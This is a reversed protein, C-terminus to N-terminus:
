MFQRNEVLTIIFNKFLSDDRHHERYIFEHLYSIFFKQHTGFQRKLKNKIRMWLNDMNRTHNFSDNSDVSRSDKQHVVVSHQYIGMDIREINAYSTCEDSVIHTGPLINEKICSEIIRTTRDPVQVLFCKGSEREIGGFVWLEKKHQGRQYKQDFFKCEGIEVIIAEGNDDTGGIGEYHNDLWLTCQNRFLDCWYIAAHKSVGAERAMRQQLDDCCWIFILTLIQQIRLCSSSFISKDRLSKSTKTCIQCVWFWGDRCRNNRHLTCFGGCLNCVVTNNILQRSACWRLARDNDSTEQLLANLSWVDENRIEELTLVKDSLPISHSPPIFTSCRQRKPITLDINIKM